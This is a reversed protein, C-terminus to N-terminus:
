AVAGGASPATFHFVAGGTADNDAWIQGGHAEVITRCLSPGVGMGSAKTAVFPQFQRERVEQSIGPGTDSVSIDDMGDGSPATAIV